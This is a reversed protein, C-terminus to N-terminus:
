FHTVQYGSSVMDNSQMILGYSVKDYVKFLMVRAIAESPLPPKNNSSYFVKNYVSSFEKYHVDGNKTVLAAGPRRVDLVDGAVLQDRGGRNTLM